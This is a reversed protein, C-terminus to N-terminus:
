FDYRGGNHIKLSRGRVRRATEKKENWLPRLVRLVADTDVDAVALHGIAPYAYAALSNRWQQRHKANKWGSERGSIFQEAYVKFTTSRNADVKAADRQAKRADIPDVSQRLMTRAEQAADRAKVLSVDRLPGLGMFRERGTAPSTFRFIWAGNGQRDVDLRLGGGDSLKAGPKAGKIDRATLVHM